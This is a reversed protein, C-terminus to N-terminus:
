DANKLVVSLSCICDHSFIFTGKDDYNACADVLLASSRFTTEKTLIFHAHFKPSHSNQFFLILSKPLELFSLSSSQVASVCLYLVISLRRSLGLLFFTTDSKLFSVVESILRCCM